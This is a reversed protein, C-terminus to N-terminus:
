FSVDGNLTEDGNRALEALTRLWGIKPDMTKLGNGHCRFINLVWLM